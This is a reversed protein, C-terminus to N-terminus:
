SMVLGDWLECDAPDKVICKPQCYLETPRISALSKAHSLM